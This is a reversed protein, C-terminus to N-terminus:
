SLKKKKERTPTTKHKLQWIEGMVYTDLDSNHVANQRHAKSNVEM